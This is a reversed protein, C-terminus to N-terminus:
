ALGAGGSPPLGTMATAWTAGGDTSKYIADQWFSAYLVQPNQPDMEIDTAGNNESKAEKRLTWTNAGDWSEWLGFRSHLAPTVRQKGGRGRIVAAWLHNPNTPDVVLRAVSVSVFCDSGVHVWTHGGDSSKYVGNGLYSDGSLAGEGTGAYVIADNSPATALAGIAQTDQGIPNPGIQSWAGAFTAPGPTAPGEQRIVQAAHAAASRMQGAESVTLPRDGALRNQIFELDRTLLEQEDEESVVPPRTGPQLTPTDDGGAAYVGTVVLLNPLLLISGVLAALRSRLSPKRRLM